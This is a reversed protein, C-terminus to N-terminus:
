LTTPIDNPESTSSLIKSVHFLFTQDEKHILWLFQNRFGTTFWIMQDMDRFNSSLVDVNGRISIIGFQM